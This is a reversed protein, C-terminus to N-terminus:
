VDGLNGDTTLFSTDLELVAIWLDNEPILSRSTKRLVM